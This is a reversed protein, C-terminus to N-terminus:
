PKPSEPGAQRRALEAAITGEFTSLIPQLLSALELRRGPDIPEDSVLTAITAAVHVAHGRLQGLADLRGEM